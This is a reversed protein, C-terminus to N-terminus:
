IYKIFSNKMNKSSIERSYKVPSILSTEETLDGIHLMKKTPIEGTLDYILQIENM